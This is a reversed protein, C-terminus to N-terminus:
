NQGGWFSGQVIPGDVTRLFYRIEKILFGKLISFGERCNESAESVLSACQQKPKEAVIDTVISFFVCAVLFDRSATNKWNKRVKPM